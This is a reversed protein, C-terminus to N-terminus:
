YAPLVVFFDIVFYQDKIKIVFYTHLSFCIISNYIINKFDNYNKTLSKEM